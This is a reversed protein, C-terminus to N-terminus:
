WKSKFRSKEDKNYGKWLLDFAKQNKITVMANKAEEGEGLELVIAVMQLLMDFTPKIDKLYNDTMRYIFKM